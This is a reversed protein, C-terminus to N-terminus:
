KAGRNTKSKFKKLDGPSREVITVEVARNDKEPLHKFYVYIGAGFHLLLSFVLAVVFLNRTFRKM